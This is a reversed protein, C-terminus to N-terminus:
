FTESFFSVFTEMLLTCEFTQEWRVHGGLNLRTLLQNVIMEFNILKNLM